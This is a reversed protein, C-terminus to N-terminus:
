GGILEGFYGMETLVALVKEEAGQKVIITTPGLPDGLFRAARSSRLAQLIQPSGLRLITVDQIRVETGREDWRDLATIINPPISDAHRRLISILHSIMLGGERAKALSSPTLRYRYEHVNGDEWLCFRALQYRVARPALIPVSVRGDSRVHIQAKEEALGKPAQGLMMKGAWKSLKFATVPEGEGPAALDMMGLWHLPGSILYRILAGDVETWHEFGRLYEDTGTDRLYWSDYDGAPRQYDPYHQRVDAIFASLSWWTQAPIPTIMQLILQRTELPNNQWEGEAQINPVQHLDNHEPSNLWNQALLMLAEGRPSELFARTEDPKPVDNPDLIGTQDIIAQVFVAPFPELSPVELGVRLGALLTCAHDLIKDTAHVPFAREAATAARGIVTTALEGYPDKKSFFTTPILALLDTPIYAFEETGRSTDFFARAVFARYWLIEVTSTPNRDPRERDRRGPGMERVEGFNRTFQYWPVRGKKRQLAKLAQIAPEPLAELIETILDIDLLSSVLSNVAGRADPADLSIGWHEAIIRYHGLDRDLLSQKLDPM